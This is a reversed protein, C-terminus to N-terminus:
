RSQCWLAKLVGHNFFVKDIFHFRSDYRVLNLNVEDSMIYGYLMDIQEQNFPGHGLIHDRLKEMKFIIGEKVHDLLSPLVNKSFDQRFADSFKWVEYWIEVPLEQFIGTSKM